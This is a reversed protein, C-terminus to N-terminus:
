PQWEDPFWRDNAEVLSAAVYPDVGAREILEAMRATLAERLVDDEMPRPMVCGPAATMVDENSSSRSRGRASRWRVRRHHRRRRPSRARLIKSTKGTASSRTPM